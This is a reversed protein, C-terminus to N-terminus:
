NIYGLAQLRRAILQSENRTFSQAGVKSDRDLDSEVYEYRLPNADVFDPDLAETLIRGDMDEPIPLGMVYLITPAVDIIRANVFVEGRRIPGGAAIFVGDLRHSGAFEVGGEIPTTSREVIPARGNGPMSQSLLFGDEWWSPLLDPANDVFPGHYIEKPRYCASIVREGTAPDVLSEFTRQIELLVERNREKSSGDASNLWV